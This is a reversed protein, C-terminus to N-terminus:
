PLDASIPPSSRSQAAVKEPHTNGLNFLELPAALRSAAIVGSVIDTIYTFDRELETGDDRRFETIRKESLIAQSFGFYAMDPRGLPGYVTFFRLGTLKLGHLHHYVHAINENSKKTAGYLSAQKDVVHKASFPIAQAPPRM